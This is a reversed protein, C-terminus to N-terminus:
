KFVALYHLLYVRCKFYLVDWYTPNFLLFMLVIDPKLQHRRCASRQLRATQFAGALREQPSRYEM